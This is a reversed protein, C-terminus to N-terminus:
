TQSAIPKMYLPLRTWIICDFTDIQNDEFSGGNTNNDATTATAAKSSDDTPATIIDEPQTERLQSKFTDGEVRRDDLHRHPNGYLYDGWLSLAFKDLPHKIDGIVASGTGATLADIHATSVRVITALAEANMKGSNFERNYISRQHNVDSGTYTFLSKGILRLLTQFPSWNMRGPRGERSALEEPYALVEKVLAPDHVLVLTTDLVKAYSIGDEGIATLSEIIQPMGKRFYMPIAGLIPVGELQPVGPINNGSRISKAVLLTALTLLTLTTVIAIVRVPGTGLTAKLTADMGM